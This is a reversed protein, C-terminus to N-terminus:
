AFFIELFIGNKWFNQERWIITGLDAEAGGGKSENKLFSDNQM